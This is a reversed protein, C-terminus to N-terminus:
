AHKMFVVYSVLLLKVPVNKQLVWPWYYRIINIIGELQFDAKYYISNRASHGFSTMLDSNRQQPLVASFITYMKILAFVNDLGPNKM